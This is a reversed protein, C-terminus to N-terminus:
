FIIKNNNKNIIFYFINIIINTENSNKSIEINDSTM